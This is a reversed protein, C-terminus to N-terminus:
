TKSILNQLHTIQMTYLKTGRRFKHHEITENIHGDVYRQMAEILTSPKKMQAESLGLNHVIALTERYLCLMLAKVQKAM